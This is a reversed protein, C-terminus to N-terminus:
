PSDVKSPNIGENSTDLAEEFIPERSRLDIRQPTGNQTPVERLVIADLDDEQKGSLSAVSKLVEPKVSPGQPTAARALNWREETALVVGTNKDFVLHTTQEYRPPTFRRSPM